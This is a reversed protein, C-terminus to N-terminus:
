EGATQKLGKTREDAREKLRSVLETTEAKAASWAQADMGSIRGLGGEASAIDEKIEEETLFLKKATASDAAGKLKAVVGQQEYLRGLVEKLSGAAVRIEQVSTNEVQQSPQDPRTQAQLTGCTLILMATITRIHKGM